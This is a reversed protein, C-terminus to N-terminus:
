GFSTTSNLVPILSQEPGPGQTPPGSATSGAQVSLITSAASTNGALDIDRATIVHNGAALAVDLTFVGDSGATATGIKVTGDFLDVQNGPTALGSFTLGSTLSTINDTSSTGNDDETALDLRTPAAPATTDVTITLVESDAGANGAADTTKAKISHVGEALAVDRTFTGAASVAVTGLSTTGDFLEVTGGAEATGTITLATTQRTINDSNSVGTDDATALDLATPAPPATKDVRVVLAASPESTNGARDTARAVVAHAGEALDVDKTFKGDAGATVTGLSTTGDFLEVKAGAEATGSITLGTTLTTVNDNNSSGNDDDTALDLTTPAVPAIKDKPGGGGGAAALGGGLLAAGVAGGILLTNASMGVVKTEQKEAQDDFWLPTQAADPSPAAASRMQDLWSEVEGWDNVTEIQVGDVRQTEADHAPDNTKHSRDNVYRALTETIGTDKDTVEVRAGAPIKLRSPLGPLTRSVSKKGDASIIRLVIAV